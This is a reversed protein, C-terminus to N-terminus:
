PTEGDVKERENDRLRGAICSSLVSSSAVLRWSRMRVLLARERTNIVVRRRRSKRGTGEYSNERASAGANTQKSANFKMYIDRTQLPM